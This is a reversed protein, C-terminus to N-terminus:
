AFKGWTTSAFFAPFISSWAGDYLALVAYDNYLGGGGGALSKSISNNGGIRVAHCDQERSSGYDTCQESLM